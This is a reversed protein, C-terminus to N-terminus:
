SAAPRRADGASGLLTHDEDPAADAGGVGLVLLAGLTLMHLTWLQGTWESALVSLWLVVPTILLAGTLVTLRAPTLRRARGLGPRLTQEHAMSPCLAAAGNLVSAMLWAADVWRAAGPPPLVIAAQGLPPLAAALVLLASSVTAGSILRAALSFLALSLIVLALPAVVSQLSARPVREQAFVALQGFLLVTGTVVLAGDAVSMPAPRLRETRLLAVAAGCLALVALLRTGIDAAALMVGTLGAAQAAWFVNSLSFLSVALMLLYWVWPRGPRHWSVGAWMALVASLNVAAHMLAQPVGSPVRLEVVIAAGGVLLYLLSPVIRSPSPAATPERSM